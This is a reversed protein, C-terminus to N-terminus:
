NEQLQEASLEPQQVITATTHIMTAFDSINFDLTTKKIDDVPAGLEKLRNRLENNENVLKLIDKELREVLIKGEWSQNTLKAVQVQYNSNELTMRTVQKQLNGIYEKKRQRSLAASQRNKLLRTQRKKDTEESSLHKKTEKMGVKMKEEVFELGVEDSDSETDEKDKDMQASSLNVVFTHALQSFNNLQQAQMEDSMDIPSNDGNAVGVVSDASM